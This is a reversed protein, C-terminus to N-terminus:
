TDVDVREPYRLAEWFGRPSLIRIQINDAIELLDQDGSVLVDANGETAASVIWQDDPDKSPWPAPASPEIVEANQRIFASITRAKSAPMRLKDTLAREVEALVHTGTILVHASLTTRLVDECLGRTAFAAILVNTDLFVRM